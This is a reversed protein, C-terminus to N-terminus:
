IASTTAMLWKLDQLNPAKVQNDSLHNWDTTILIFFNMENGYFKGQSLRLNHLNEKPTFKKPTPPPYTQHHIVTLYPKYEVHHSFHNICTTTYLQLIPNTNHM